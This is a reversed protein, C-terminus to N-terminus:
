IYLCDLLIYCSEFPLIKVQERVGLGASLSYEHGTPHVGTQREDMNAKRGEGKGGSEGERKGM